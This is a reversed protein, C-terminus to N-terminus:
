EYKLYEFNRVLHTSYRKMVIQPMDDRINNNNDDNKYKHEGKKSDMGKVERKVFEDLM